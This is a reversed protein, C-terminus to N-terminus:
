ITQDRTMARALDTCLSRLLAFRELASGAPRVERHTARMYERLSEYDLDIRGDELFRLGRALWGFVFDDMAAEAPLNTYIETFSFGVQTAAVRSLAERSAFVPPPLVDREGISEHYGTLSLQFFPEARQFLACLVPRTFFRPREFADFAARVAAALTGPELGGRVLLLPNQPEWAVHVGGEFADWHQRLAAPVERGAVEAGPPRLFANRADFGTVAEAGAAARDLVPLLMTIAGARDLLRPVEKEREPALARLIKSTARANIGPGGTPFLSASAYSYFHLIRALPDDAREGDPLSLREGWLHKWNRVEGRRWGPSAYAAVDEASLIDAEGVMPLLRRTAALGTKVRAVAELARAPTLGQRLIVTVDIDSRGPVWTGQAFSNRAHLGCVEPIAGLRSGLLRTAAHYPLRNITGVVPIGNTALVAKRLLAIARSM